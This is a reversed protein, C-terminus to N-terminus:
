RVEAGGKKLTMEKAESKKEKRSQLVVIKIASGPSSIAQKM